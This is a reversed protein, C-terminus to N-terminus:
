VAHEPVAARGVIAAGCVADISEVAEVGIAVRGRVTTSCEPKELTCRVVMVGIQKRVTHEHLIHSGSVAARQITLMNIGHVSAYELVIKGAVGASAKARFSQSACNRIACEDAVHSPANPKTPLYVLHRVNAAACKQIPAVNM